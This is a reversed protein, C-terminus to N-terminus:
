GRPDRAFWRERFACNVLFAPVDNGGKEKTIRVGVFRVERSPAGNMFARSTDM